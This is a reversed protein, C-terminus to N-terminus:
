PRRGHSVVFLFFREFYDVPTKEGLLALQALFDDVLLAAVFFGGGPLGRSMRGAFAISGEGL